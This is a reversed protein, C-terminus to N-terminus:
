PLTIEVEYFRASSGASLDIVTRESGDDSTMMDTLITWGPASLDSKYKVAYTRGAVIPGFVIAKREPQGAVTDVRLSFRSTADKPLLGALYEFLNSQGDGDPDAEDAADGSNATSGFYTLRWAEQATLGTGILGLDFPNVSDSTNSSLHLAASRDGTASPTFVLSFTTAAGPAITQSAPLTVAFDGGNAGDKVLSGLVLDAMGTNRITFTVPSGPTGTALGGFDVGAGDALPTNVPQEVSKVPVASYVAFGDDAIANQGSSSVTTFSGGVYLATSGLALASVTGNTGNQAPDDLLVWQANVENWKALRGAPVANQSASSVTTFGGGVYIETATAAMAYVTGNIAVGNQSSSGLGKWANGVADWIAVNNVPVNAQTGDSFSNYSGGVYVNGGNVAFANVTGNVGNTAGGGLAAWQGNLSDWRAVNKASLGSQTSDSATGFSGGVYVDSGRLALASVFTGSLGNQTGSGMPSWVEGVTDWKAILSAPIANQTSSSATTFWGGVILDSGQVALSKVLSSVGHQTSSGLRSWSAAQTNWKAIRNATFNFQAASSVTTFNGGVYLDSGVMALAYVASNTGNQHPTGLAIWTHASKSWCALNSAAVNGVYSFDGGVYVFNGADLVANITGAVGNGTALAVAPNWVSQNWGSVGKTGYSRGASEFVGGALVSGGSVVTLCQVTDDTGKSDLGQLESWVSTSTDWKAVHNVTLLPQTSSSVDSFQGGVYLATGSAALAYVSHSTGNYITNGLYSWTNTGTDWRAIQKASITTGTYSVSFFEGGVYVGSGIVALANVAGDAGNLFTAGLPSWTGTTTDWKAVRNVTINQQALSSSATTFVGGVYLATGNMALARVAAGTGSVGNQGGTGLASWTGASTDWKAIGKASLANQTTSSVTTMTGGVYLSTGSPLLALVSGAVGNQGIIGLPSWAGTLMNWAAINNVSVSGQTSSVRNFDGGVYLTNGVVALANVRGNTGNQGFGGLTSIAGTTKNVRVVNNAVSKGAHSFSGGYYYSDTTEVIAAVSGDLGLPNFGSDWPTAARLSPLPLFLFFALLTLVLFRLPFLPFRM